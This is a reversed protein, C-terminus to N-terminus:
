MYPIYKSEPPNEAANFRAKASIDVDKFKIAIYSFRARDISNLRFEAQGHYDESHIGLLNRYYNDM